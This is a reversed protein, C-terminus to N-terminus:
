IIEGRRELEAEAALRQVEFAYADGKTPMPKLLKTVKLCRLGEAVRARVQPDNWAESNNPLAKRAKLPTERSATELAEKWRSELSRYPSNKLEWHGIKQCAWFIEPRSWEVDEGEVWRHYKQCAEVHAGVPEVPPRCLKLFEPLTPPWDRRKMAAVGDRIEEPTYGGLEEAWIAKVEDLDSGTWADALKAGYFANMRAFIRDVWSLPIPQSIGSAGAAALSPM